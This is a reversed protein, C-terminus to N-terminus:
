NGARKILRWVRLVEAVSWAQAFCGRPRHPANADFIESMSGLGREILHRTLLPDILARARVVDGYLRLHAVVFSGILWAWVTGQHYAADRTPRDGGYRPHYDPHDPSLSRLGVPTLLHQECVDLVGRSRAEGLPSYPLSVAIVQNPRLTDDDGAPGDIVDYCYRGNWFRDFSEAVRDAMVEYPADTDGREAAFRAMIRLANYWLANVEVAKGTRPTVVWDDIKVDMWTLQVGTEGAYLLGDNPDMHISYRTGRVHWDIMDALVPYLEDLLAMDGTQDITARVGEMYWLTADVTNYEPTEGADPFRNPIMGKDVFRAFTRLVQRAIEPRETALTLGPLAIMTDRGWDNFWPYGAIVTRGYADDATARRVIFQDAALVLQRVALPLTDGGARDILDREYVRRRDLASSVDMDFDETTAVVAVPEGARLTFALTGALLHDDYETEGRYAEVAKYFGSCWESSVTLRAGACLIRLFRGDGHTVAIGGPVAAVTLEPANARMRTSGHHDRWNVLCDATLETESGELQTYQVYTTNAGQEMWVRKELLIDGIRYHWVPMTGDLYFREIHTYGQPKIDNPGYADTYLPVREGASTVVERLKVATLTRGLPPELAAVLLGHYHRTLVGAVTGCAYGGIGNTVLWERASASAFDHCIAPGLDVAHHM